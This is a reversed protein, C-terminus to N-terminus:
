LPSHIIWCPRLLDLCSVLWVSAAVLLCDLLHKGQHVSSM